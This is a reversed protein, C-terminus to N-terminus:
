GERLERWHGPNKRRLSQREPRLYACPADARTHTRTRHLNNHPAHGCRRCSRRCRRSPVHALFGAEVPGDEILSPAGETDHQAVLQGLPASPEDFHWGGVGALCACSASHDVNGTAAILRMEDTGGASM